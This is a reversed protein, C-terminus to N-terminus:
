GHSEISRSEDILADAVGRRPPRRSCSALAALMILLAASTGLQVEPPLFDEAKEVITTDVAAVRPEDQSCGNCGGVILCSVIAVM